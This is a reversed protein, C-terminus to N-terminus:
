SSDSSSYEGGGGLFISLATSFFDEVEEGEIRCDEEEAEVELFAAGVRIGVEAERTRVGEVGLDEGEPPGEVGTKNVPPGEVPVKSVTM